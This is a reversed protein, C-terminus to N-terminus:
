WPWIPFVAHGLLFAAVGFWYPHRECWERWVVGFWVGFILVVGPYAKSLEYLTHSTGPENHAFKWGTWLCGSIICGAVISTMAVDKVMAWREARDQEIFSGVDVEIEDGVTVGTEQLGGGTEHKGHLNTPVPEDDEDDGRFFGLRGM